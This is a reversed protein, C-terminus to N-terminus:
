DDRRPQWEAPFHAYRGPRISASSAKIRARRRVLFYVVAGLLNAFLIILVWVIKTNGQDSEKTACDILMWLWFCSACLILSVFVLGFLTEM